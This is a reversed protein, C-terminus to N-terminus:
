EEIRMCKVGTIFGKAWSEAEEQSYFQMSIGIPEGDEYVFVKWIAQHNPQDIQYSFM